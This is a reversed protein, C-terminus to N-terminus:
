MRPRPAKKQMRACGPCSYVYEGTDMEVKMAKKLQFISGCFECEVEKMETL